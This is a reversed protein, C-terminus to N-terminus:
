LVEVKCSHKKQTKWYSIGVALIRGSYKPKEALKGWFRLAYQKNQIQRVAEQPTDDTKLELIICDADKDTEPYFIFDVFGKGAKDEREVRYRDRAASYVLNVVAALETEHNYCLIPFETNHVLDLIEEMTKTDEALTAQLM